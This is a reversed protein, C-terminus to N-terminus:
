FGVTLMLLRRLDTDDANPDFDVGYGTLYEVIQDRNLESVDAVTNVVPLNDPREGVIFPVQLPPLQLAVRRRNEAFRNELQFRNLNTNMDNLRTNVLRFNNEMNREFRSIIRDMVNSTALAAAVKFNADRSQTEITSLQQQYEIVLPLTLQAPPPVNVSNEFLEQDIPLLTEQQGQEQQGQQQQGQEAIRSSRRRRRGGRRSPYRAM